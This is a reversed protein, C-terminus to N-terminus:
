EPLSRAPTAARQIGRPLIAVYSHSNLVIALPSHIDRSPRVVSVCLARSPACLFRTVGLPWRSDLYGLNDAWSDPFFWRALGTDDDM